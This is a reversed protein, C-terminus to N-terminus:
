CDRLELVYYIRLTNNDVYIQLEITSLLNGSELNNVIANDFDYIAASITRSQAASPRLM